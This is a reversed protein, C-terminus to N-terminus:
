RSRSSRQVQRLGKTQVQLFDRCTAAKNLEGERKGDAATTLYEKVTSDTRNVKKRFIILPQALISYIVLGNV